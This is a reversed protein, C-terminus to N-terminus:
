NGEQFERRISFCSMVAQLWCSSWIRGADPKSTLSFPDPIAKDPSPFGSGCSGSVQQWQAMPGPFASGSLNVKRSTNYIPYFFYVYIYTYTCPQKLCFSSTGLHQSSCSCGGGDASCTWSPAPSVQGPLRIARSM